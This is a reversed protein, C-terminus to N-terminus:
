KTAVRESYGKEVLFQNISEGDIFCEATATRDSKTYALINCVVKKGDLVKQLFVKTKVGKETRPNAYIGYLFLYVDDIMIENANIVNATGEVRLSRELYELGDYEGDIYVFKKKEIQKPQEVKEVIKEPNMKPKEETQVVDSVTVNVSDETTEITAEVVDEAEQSLVDVARIEGGAVQGFGRRGVASLAPSDSYVLEDTGKKEPVSIKIQQLQVIKGRYWGLIENRPVKYWYVPVCYLGALVLLVLLLIWWHRFPYTLFLFINRLLGPLGKKKNFYKENTM